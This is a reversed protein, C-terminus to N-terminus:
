RTGVIPWQLGHALLVQAVLADLEAQDERWAQATVMVTWVVARAVM